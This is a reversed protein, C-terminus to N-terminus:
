INKQTVNYYYHNKGHFGFPIKGYNEKVSSEHSFESAADISAFVCGNDEYIKRNHVCYFGDEHYYGYYSKWPLNLEQALSLLKKSRLTFGGNGVRQINGYPDKFSFDDQPLPWIAGIYDYDLFYEKWQDPNVVYGDNQVILAYPTDIYEHLRYVIFHNYQEYNLPECEVIQVDEDQLKTPTILKSEAFKIARSSYKIARLSEQADVGAVSVITVENLNIM